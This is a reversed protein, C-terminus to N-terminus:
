GSCIRVRVSGEFLNDPAWIDPAYSIHGITRCETKTGLQGAGSYGSGRKPTRIDPAWNQCGITQRGFQMAGLQGAGM